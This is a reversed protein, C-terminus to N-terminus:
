ATAGRSENELASEWCADLWEQTRESAAMSAEILVPSACMAVFDEIMLAAQPKDADVHEASVDNEALVDFAAGHGDGRDIVFDRLKIVAGKGSVRLDMILVASDFGCNWTSTSGDSFQLCGSGTVCAGNVPERRLYASAARLSVDPQLYEVAARMNYWGADGIAGYPEQDPRLRINNTDSLRFQFASAVSWPGGATGLIREKLVGNRPHHVFHTGDMFGVGNKRCAATIRRLSPLNAFPKEALVHKGSQAATVSIDERVSTPTAVYIADVEDSACMAAWDDFTEPIDHDDAFARATEMRRSSVATVEAGGALAIMPSVQSAISGTGVVGWRMPRQSSEPRAARTSIGAAALVGGASAGALLRRRTPDPLSDRGQNRDKRNM